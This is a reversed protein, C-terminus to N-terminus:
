QPHINEKNLKNNNETCFQIYRYQFTNHSLNQDQHDGLYFKVMYLKPINDHLNEKYLLRLSFYRFDMRIVLMCVNENRWLIYYLWSSFAM